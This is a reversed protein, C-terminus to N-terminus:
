FWRAMHPVLFWVKGQLGLPCPVISSKPIEISNKASRLVPPGGTGGYVAETSSTKWCRWRRTGPETWVEM